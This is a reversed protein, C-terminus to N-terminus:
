DARDAAVIEYVQPELTLRGSQVLAMFREAEPTRFDPSDMCALHDELRRWQLYQVVRTGDVGRHLAAGVFGPQKAFLPQNAEALRVVEAQDEPRCTLIVLVTVVGAGPDISLM